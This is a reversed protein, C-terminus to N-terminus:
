GGLVIVTVGALMLAAGVPRETIGGEKFLIHGYFVGILLSLRKVAIMYAVKTISVALMHTVIMVAYLLGPAIAARLTGNRTLHKLERKGKYLAIPTLALVVATYYVAAFFLPSSATIAKKGLTSTISYIFAVVIMALSGPERRIAMFPAFLGNRLERLNLTYSGAAILVIGIGGTLSIREGLVIFPIVLLFVPTLALFPLALSLPSLKLGRVYLITAIVELPLATLSARFFDSGLPPVPVFLLTVMLPPVALLLRLWLILYENHRALAQKTLADSTALAFACVLTLPLWLTTM